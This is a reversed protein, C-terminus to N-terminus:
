EDKKIEEGLQSEHILKGYLGIKGYYIKDHEMPNYGSEVSSRALFEVCGIRDINEIWDKNGPMKNWVDEFWFESGTFQGSKIRYTKGKEFTMKFFGKVNQILVVTVDSLKKLDVIVAFKQVAYKV